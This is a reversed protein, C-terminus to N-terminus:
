SLGLAAAFQEANSKSGSGSGRRGNQVSTKRKAAGALKEHRARLSAIADRDPKHEDTVFRAMNLEDLLEDLDDEGVVSTLAARIAETALEVGHEARAEERGAERAAEVDSPSETAAKTTKRAERTKVRLAANERRLKRIEDQTKQPLDEFAVEESEQDENEEADVEETEAVEDGLGLAAAVETDAASANSDTDAM